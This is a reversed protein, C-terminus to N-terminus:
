RHIVLFEDGATTYGLSLRKIKYTGPKGQFTVRGRLIIKEDTDYIYITYSVESADVYTEGNFLNAEAGNGVYQEIAERADSITKFTALLNKM